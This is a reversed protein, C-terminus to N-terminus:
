FLYIYIYLYFAQKHYENLHGKQRQILAAEVFSASTTEWAAYIVILRTWKAAEWRYGYTSNHWRWSPNHTFGVKYICPHQAELVRDVAECCHKMVQGALLGRKPPLDYDLSADNVIADFCTETRPLELLRHDLVERWPRQRRSRHELVPLPHFSPFIMHIPPLHIFQNGEMYYGCTGLSAM